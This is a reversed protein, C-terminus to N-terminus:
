KREPIDLQKRISRVSHCSINSCCLCHWTTILSCFQLGPFQVTSLAVDETTYATKAKMAHMYVAWLFVVTWEASVFSWCIRRAIDRNVILEMLRALTRSITSNLLFFRQEGTWEKDLPIASNRLNLPKNGRKVIPTAPMKRSQMSFGHIRKQVQGRRKLFAVNWTM